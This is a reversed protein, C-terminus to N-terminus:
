QSVSQSSEARTTEPMPDCVMFVTSNKPSEGPSKARMGQDEEKDTPNRVSISNNNGDEEENGGKSNHHHHHSPSATSIVAAATTTTTSTSTSSSTSASSSASVTGVVVASVPSLSKSTQPESESEMM